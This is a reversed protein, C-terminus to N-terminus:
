RRGHVPQCLWTVPSLRLLRAQTNSSGIALACQLGGAIHLAASLPGAGTGAALEAAKHKHEPAGVPQHNLFRLDTRAKSVERAPASWPPARAQWTYCEVQTTVTMCQTWLMCLCQRGPTVAFTPYSCILRQSAWATHAALLKDRGHQATSAQATYSSCSSSLQSHATHSQWATHTPSTNRQNPPAATQQQDPLSTTPNLLQAWHQRLEGKVEQRCLRRGAAADESSVVFPHPCALMLSLALVLSQGRRSHSAQSHCCNTGCGICPLWYHRRCVVVCPGFCLDQM